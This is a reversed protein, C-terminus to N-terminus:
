RLRTALTEVGDGDLQGLAASRGAMALLVADARGRISRGTGHAWDLDTAEFRLGDSIGKPVVNGAGADAVFQLSTRM